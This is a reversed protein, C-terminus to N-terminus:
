AAEAEKRIAKLRNHAAKVVTKTKTPAYPARLIAIARALGYVRGQARHRNLVTKRTAKEVAAVLEDELSELISRGAKVTYRYKPRKTKTPM